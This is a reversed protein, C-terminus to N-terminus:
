PLEKWLMLRAWNLIPRSWIWILRAEGANIKGIGEMGPRLRPDAGELRAEVRFINKGDQAEAVPVIRTVVFALDASPLGNLVLRGTEGPRLEALDREDIEIVVRYDDLPAVEFLVKGREAPSGLKQSLDGTVILGRFPATIAARAIKSRVLAWEAEAEGAHASQVAAEALDHKGEADRAKLRAEDRQSEDRLAELELERTDLAAILEGQQVVDGARRPAQAIFGDFPSVLASQVQGEIDAKGSLRFEGTVVCLATVGAIAALCALKLTPHRRGLVARAARGIARVLSGTLPRDLDRQLSLVPGAVEAVAECLTVNAADFPPPVDRELTIVGFQQGGVLMIVSLAAEGRTARVHDRHAASVRREAGPFPPHAISASQDIAEEMVNALSSALQLNRAISATHSLAVVRVRGGRVLGIAVRRCDLRTAIENALGAAAAHLGAAGGVANVLELATRATALRQTEQEAVRRYFLTEIWGAGWTLRRLVDQLAADSQATVHVVVVGWLKGSVDIPYAAHAENEPTRALVGRRDQLAQRATPILDVARAVAAGSQAGAEQQWSAAPAYSGDADDILLLLGARAGQVLRCQLNLWSQCFESAQRATAFRVWDLAEEAAASAARPDPTSRSESFSM